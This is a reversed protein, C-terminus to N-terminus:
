EKLYVIVRLFRRFWTWPKYWVPFRFENIVFFRRSDSTLKLLINLTKVSSRVIFIEKNLLEYFRAQLDDDKFQKNM